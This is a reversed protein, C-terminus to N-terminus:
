ARGIKKEAQEMRDKLQIARGVDDESIIKTKSLADASRVMQDLYGSNTRLAAETDGGFAKGAIDLAALREGKELAENILKAVARFREESNNASGLAAVGTNGKFNGAGRLEDIRQQLDSGGLKPASAENFRKLAATIDDVSKAAEGGSKTVRQFFDTSFGSANAKEAIGNFEEIRQKALETAYAMLKFTNAIVSIGLAIPGLVGLVRGFAISAAGAAGQSALFGGNMEIVSKTITRLSTSVLSGTKNMDQQFQGVDARVPINLVPAPM